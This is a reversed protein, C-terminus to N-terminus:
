GGLGAFPNREDQWRLGRRTASATTECINLEKAIEALTKGCTRIYHAKEMDLKGQRERSKLGAVRRRAKTDPNQATRRIVQSKDILELHDPNLCLKNRCTVTVFLGAPIPGRAEAWVIRRPQVTQSKGEEGRITLKPRGRADQSRDWMLCDGDEVCRSNIFALDIVPRPRSM